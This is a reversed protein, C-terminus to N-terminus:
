GKWKRVFVFLNIDLKVRRRLVWSGVRWNKRRKEKELKQGQEQSTQLRQQKELVGMQLFYAEGRMGSGGKRGENGGVLFPHCVSLVSPTVVAVLKYGTAQELLQVWPGSCWPVVGLRLSPAIFTTVM